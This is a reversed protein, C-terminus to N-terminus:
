VLVYTYNIYCVIFDKNFVALKNVWVNEDFLAVIIEIFHHTQTGKGHWAVFWDIIVKIADEILNLKACIDVTAHKTILM